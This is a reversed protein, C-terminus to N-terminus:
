GSKENIKQSGHWAECSGSASIPAARYGTLRPPFEEREEKPPSPQPSSAWRKRAADGGERVSYPVRVETRLLAQVPLHALCFRGALETEFMAASQLGRELGSTANDIGGLGLQTHVSLEQRM